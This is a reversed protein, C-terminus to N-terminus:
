KKTRAAKGLGASTRAALLKDVEPQSMPAVSGLQQAIALIRAYHEVLEMRLYAQELSDGVTLVGNGQLLIADPEDLLREIHSRAHVLGRERARPM